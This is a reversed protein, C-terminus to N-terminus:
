KEYKKIPLQNIIDNKLYFQNIKHTKKTLGSISKSSMLM